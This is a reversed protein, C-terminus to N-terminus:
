IAKSRSTECTFQLNLLCINIHKITNKGKSWYKRCSKSIYNHLENCHNKSKLIIKVQAVHFCMSSWNLEAEILLCYEDVNKETQIKTEKIKLIKPYAISVSTLLDEPVDNLFIVQFFCFSLKLFNWSLCLFM